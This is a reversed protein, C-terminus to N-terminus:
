GRVKVRDGARLTEAGQVVIRDEPRLGSVIEVKDGAELGTQVRELRVRDGDVIFVHEAGEQRVIAARPVVLSGSAALLPVRVSAFFGPKLRYGPNPLVAEMRVTRSQISASPFVTRITGTFEQGPLSAVHCRVQQGPALRGSYKEPLEFQLKLPEVQMLVLLAEGERAYEGATVKKDKVIGAFPALVVMDRLRRKALELTTEAGEVAAAAVEYQAKFTEFTGVAITRDELLSKKRDLEGRAKEENARAQALAAAAQRVALEAKSADLRVLTQGKAVRANEEVLVATIPGAAEAAVTAEEWPMLSGPVDITVELREAAPVGVAVEAVAPTSSAPTAARPPASAARASEEGRGCGASGIVLLTLGTAMSSRTM